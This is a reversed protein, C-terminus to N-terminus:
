RCFLRWCSMFLSYCSIACPEMVFLLVLIFYIFKVFLWIVNQVCWYNWPFGALKTLCDFKVRFHCLNSWITVCIMKVDHGVCSFVLLFWDKFISQTAYSTVEDDICWWYWRCCVTVMKVFTLSVYSFFPVCSMHTQKWESVMQTSSM